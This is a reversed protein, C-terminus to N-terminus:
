PHDARQRSDEGQFDPRIVASGQIDLAMRRSGPLQQNRSRAAVAPSLARVTMPPSFVFSKM